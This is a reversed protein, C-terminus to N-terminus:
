VRDAQVRDPRYEQYTFGAVGALTGWGRAMDSLAEVQATRGRLLAPILALGGRLLRGCGKVFRMVSRDHLAVTNGYRYQRRIIWAANLRSPPVAEYVEAHDAWIITLGAALATKFFLYDSGGAFRLTEDFRLRHLTIFRWDILVNNSAATTIASADPHRPRAYFSGAAIWGPTTPPLVSLVPGYVCPAASARQVLLLAELWQPSVTEDDDLLAVFDTEAPVAAFAANRAFPIGQRPECVYQVRYHACLARASGAADNDAVIILLEPKELAHFTLAALSRLLAELGDPRQYTAICLAIKM